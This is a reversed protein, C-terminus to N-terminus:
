YLLNSDFSDDVNTVCGDCMVVTLFQWVILMLVCTLLLMLTVMLLRTLIIFRLGRVITALVIRLLIIFVLGSVGILWVLRSM